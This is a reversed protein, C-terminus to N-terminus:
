QIALPRYIGDLRWAINDFPQFAKSNIPLPLGNAASQPISPEEPIVGILQVAVQDIVADLDPLSEGVPSKRVRNIIM